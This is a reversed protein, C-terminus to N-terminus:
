IRIILENGDIEKMFKQLQIYKDSKWEKKRAKVKATTQRKVKTDREIINNSLIILDFLLMRRQTFFFM